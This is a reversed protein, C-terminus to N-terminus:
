RSPLMPGAQAERDGRFCHSLRDPTDGHKSEDKGSRQEGGRRRRRVHRAADQGVDAQGIHGAFGAVGDRQFEEAEELSRGRLLVGAGKLALILGIQQAQRGLAANLVAIEIPDTHNLRTSPAKVRGLCRNQGHHALLQGWPM